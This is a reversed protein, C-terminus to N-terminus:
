GSSEHRRRSRRPKACAPPPVCRHSNMEGTSYISKHSHPLRLSILFLYICALYIVYWAVCQDALGFHFKRLHRVADKKNKWWVRKGVTCLCCEFGDEAKELFGDYALCPEFGGPFTMSEIETPKLRRVLADLSVGDKFVTLIWTCAFDTGGRRRCSAQLKIPDPEYEAAPKKGPQDHVRRRSREQARVVQPQHRAVGHPQARLRKEQNLPSYLPALMPVSKGQSQSSSVLPDELTRTKITATGSALQEFGTLSEDWTM